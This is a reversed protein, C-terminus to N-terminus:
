KIWRTWQVLAVTHMYLLMIYPCQDGLIFLSSRITGDAYHGHIAFLIEGAAVIGILLNQPMLTAARIIRPPHCVLGYTTVVVTVLLITVALWRYHFVAMLSGIGITNYPGGSILLVAWFLHLFSVMWVIPPQYRLEAYFRTM